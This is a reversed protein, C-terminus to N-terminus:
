EKFLLLPWKNIGSLFSVKNPQKGGVQWRGPIHTGCGDKEQPWAQPVHAPTCLYLHTM